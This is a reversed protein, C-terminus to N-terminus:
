NVDKHLVFYPLFNKQPERYLIEIFNPGGSFLRAVGPRFQRLASHLLKHCIKKLILLNNVFAIKDLGRFSQHIPGGTKLRLYLRISFTSLVYKFIEFAESM